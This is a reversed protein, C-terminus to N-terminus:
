HRNEDSDAKISSKVGRESELYFGICQTESGICQTECERESEERMSRRQREINSIMSALKLHMTERKLDLSALKLHM